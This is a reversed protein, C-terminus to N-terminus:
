KVEKALCTYETNGEEDLLRTYVKPEWEQYKGGLLKNFYKAM